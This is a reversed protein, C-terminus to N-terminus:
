EARSLAVSTLAIRWYRGGDGNLKAFKARDDAMLGICVYKGPAKFQMDGTFTVVTGPWVQVRAPKPAPTFVTGAPAAVASRRDLNWTDGFEDELKLNKPNVKTVRYVKGDTKGKITILTGPGIWERVPILRTFDIDDM